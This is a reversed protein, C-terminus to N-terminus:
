RRKKKKPRGMFLLVQEVSTPDGLDDLATDALKGKAGALAWKVGVHNAPLMQAIREAANADRERVIWIALLLLVRRKEMTSLAEAAKLVQDM